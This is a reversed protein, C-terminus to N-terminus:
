GLSCGIFHELGAPEKIQEYCGTDKNWKFYWRNRTSNYLGEEICEIFAYGFTYEYMDAYNHKVAREAAGYSCYWGITRRYGFDPWGFDDLRCETCTTVTYIKM